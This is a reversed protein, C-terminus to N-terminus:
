LFRSPTSCDLLPLTWIRWQGHHPIQHSQRSLGVDGSELGRGLAAEIDAALEAFVGVAGDSM